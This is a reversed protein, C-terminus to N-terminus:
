SRRSGGSIEGTEDELMTRLYLSVWTRYPRWLEAIKELKTVSPPGDLDYAMAVARGLRPENTPLYDPEGAGRLLILEASFDGIGPLKKLGRIAEDAPMSRLYDADLKGNAAERGLCRLWEVKRGFLGPFEELQALRSPYPFAHEPGGDTEVFSGLEEAMRAKIKAAQSIRIRHGIIAWAAAEYPSYFLVPRLGPYQEQLRGVVPDREGVDAFGSGDVDLSLIRAVQKGVLGPEVDSYVEGVVVNKEVRVAVGAIDDGGDVTFALRLCDAGEGEYAAPAFGELFRVSQEFSYPGVPEIEFTARAM